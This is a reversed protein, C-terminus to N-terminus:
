KENRVCLNSAKKIFFFKQSVKESNNVTENLIIM